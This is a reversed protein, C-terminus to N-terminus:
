FLFRFHGRLLVAGGEGLHLTRQRVVLRVRVDGVALALSCALTPPDPPGGSGGAHGV